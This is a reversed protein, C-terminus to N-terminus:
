HLEKARADILLTTFMLFMCDSMLGTQESLSVVMGSIFRADESQGVTGSNFKNEVPWNGAM